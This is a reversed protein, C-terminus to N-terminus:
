LIQPHVLGKIWSFYQPLLQLLCNIPPFGGVETSATKYQPM